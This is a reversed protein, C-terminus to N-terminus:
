PALPKMMPTAGANRRAELAMIAAIAAPQLVPDPRNRLAVLRTIAGVDGRRAIADLAEARMEGSVQEDYAIEVLASTVDHKTGERESATRVLPDREGHTVLMRALLRAAAPRDSRVLHSRVVRGAGEEDFFARELMTPAHELANLAVAAELACRRRDASTSQAGVQIVPPLDPLDIHEFGARVVGRIGGNDSCVGLLLRERARVPDEVAHDAVASLLCMTGADVYWAYAKKDTPLKGLAYRLAETPFAQVKLCTLGSLVDPHSSRFLTQDIAANLEPTPRREAMTRIAAIQDDPPGNMLRDLEATSPDPLPTPSPKPSPTKVPEPAAAPRGAGLSGLHDSFGIFGRFLLAIGFALALLFFLARKV